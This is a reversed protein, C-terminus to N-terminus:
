KLKGELQRQQWTAETVNGAELEQYIQGTKLEKPGNQSFISGGGSGLSNALFVVLVVSIFISVMIKSGKNM